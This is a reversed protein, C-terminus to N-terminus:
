QKSLVSVLRCLGVVGRGAEASLQSLRVRLPVLRPDGMGHGELPDIAMRSEEHTFLLWKIAEDPSSDAKATHQRM